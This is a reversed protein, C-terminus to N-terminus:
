WRQGTPEVPSVHVDCEHELGQHDEPADDHARAVAADGDPRQPPAPTKTSTNMKPSAGPSGGAPATAIMRATTVAAAMICAAPPMSQITIIAALTMSLRGLCIVRIAGSSRTRQEGDARAGAVDEVRQQRHDVVHRVAVPDSRRPRQRDGHDLRATASAAEGTEAAIAAMSVRVSTAGYLRPSVWIRAMVRGAHRTPMTTVDRTTLRSPLSSASSGSTWSFIRAPRSGGRGSGVPADACGADAVAASPEVAAGADAARVAVLSPRLEATANRSPTSAITMRPSNESRRGDNATSPPSTTTSSMVLM